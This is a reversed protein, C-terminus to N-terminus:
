RTLRGVKFGYSICALVTESKGKDNSGRMCTEMLVNSNEVKGRLTRLEEAVQDFEDPDAICHLQATVEIVRERLEIIHKIAANVGCETCKQAEVNGGESMAILANMQQLCKRYDCEKLAVSFVLFLEVCRKFDPHDRTHEPSSRALRMFEQMRQVALVYDEEEVAKITMEKLLTSYQEAYAQDEEPLDIQDPPLVEEDDRDDALESENSSPPSVSSAIPSAHSVIPSVNSAYPPAQSYSPSMPHIGVILNDEKDELEQPSLEGCKAALERLAKSPGSRSRDGSGQSKRSTQSSQSSEDNNIKKDNKIKKESM